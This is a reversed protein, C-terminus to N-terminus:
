TGAFRRSSKIHRWREVPSLRHLPESSPAMPHVTAPPTFHPNRALYRLPLVVHFGPNGQDCLFRNGWDDFTMGFQRSGNELEFRHSGPSFLFDRGALNRPAAAPDGAPRIEGGHGGGTGHIAHDLGFLLSNVFTQQRDMAFGTFVKERIDARGDGDTDKLYWIDPPSAVYVGGKWPVIGGVWLLKDAFVTSRDYVGDGDTDRLLRVTGLPEADPAFSRQWAVRTRSRPNYPYDLMEGVYLGGDEDFAAVIPSRVLPEAAVLQMEFGPIMEFSKVAEAAPTPRSPALYARLEAEAVGAANGDLALDRAGGAGVGLEAALAAPDAAASMGGRARIKLLVDRAQQFYNLVRSNEPFRRGAHFAIQGDLKAIWADVAAKEFPARDGLSVYVPNTHAEADPLGGPSRSHARAAIWASGALEISHELEIWNGRGDARSVQRRHAVRGNVILDVDTVPTIESRVRVRARVRHPGEGGKRIRAGPREGDVELLLLPATTFFSRGASLGALWEPLTPAAAHHVYTRSDALTRCPPYDSAAHAPFRYGTNLMNYWGELGIDRYVGFQLLEISQIRGLAADAYIERGYGGHAMLAFGGRAMTERAVEGYVPWTDLHYSTGAAVLDERLILNMHGYVTSRYEQGSVNSVGGRQRITGRGLARQPFELKDMVATYPGAPENYALTVGYGLGEADLLDFLIRDDEETERRFHLHTDGAHYGAAPMPATRALKVEVERWSGAPVTVTVAEPRYELGKWVEVRVDGAPVAVTADGTTYFFRGVYRYPAKGTRNGKAGPAPWQGTLSYPTLRGPPPQYFNGDSGVVNVKCPTPEGTAADRVTIRVRTEDAPLTRPRGVHDFGPATFLVDEERAEAPTLPQAPALVAACVALVVSKLVGGFCRSAKPVVRDARSRRLAAVHGPKSNM